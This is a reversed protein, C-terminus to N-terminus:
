HYTTSMVRLETKKIESAEKKKKKKKKRHSIRRVKSSKNVKM